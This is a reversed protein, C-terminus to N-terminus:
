GGADDDRDQDAPQVDLVTFRADLRVQVSTGDPRTVAVAYLANSAGPARDVEGARGGPVAEVAASRARDATVGTFADGDGVVAYATGVGALVLALAGIAIRIGTRTKGSM